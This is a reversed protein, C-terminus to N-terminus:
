YVMGGVGGDITMAGVTAAEESEERYATYKETTIMTLIKVGAGFRRLLSRENCDRAPIQVRCGVHGGHEHFLAQGKDCDMTWGHDFAIQGSYDAFTIHMHTGAICRFMEGDYADDIDRDPSVQSAPHPVLKDDICIAEIVVKKIKTREAEYATKRVGGGVVLNQIVGVPAPGIFSGNGGGGGGVFTTSLASANSRSSASAMANANVITKVNVNIKIKNMEPPPMHPQCGCNHGSGGALAPTAALALAICGGIAALTSNFPAKM